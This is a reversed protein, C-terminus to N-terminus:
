LTREAPKKRTTSTKPAPSPVPAEGSDEKFTHSKMPCQTYTGGYTWDQPGARSFKKCHASCLTNPCQKSSATENKPGYKADCARCAPTGREDLVRRGSGYGAGGGSGSGGGGRILPKCEDVKRSLTVCQKHFVNTPPPM